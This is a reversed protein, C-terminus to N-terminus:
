FVNEICSIHCIINYEDNMHDSFSAKWKGGTLDIAGEAESSSKKCWQKIASLLSTMHYLWKHIYDDGSM